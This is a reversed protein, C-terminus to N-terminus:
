KKRNEALFTLKETQNDEPHELVHLLLERLVRGVEGGDKIGMKLLDDGRIQLQSLATCEGSLLITKVLKPANEGTRMFFVSAACLVADFGYRAIGKKITFPTDFSVNINRVTRSLAVTKKTM